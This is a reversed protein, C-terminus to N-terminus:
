DKGKGPSDNADDRMEIIERVVGDDSFSIWLIRKDTIERWPYEWVELPKFAARTSRYPPGFLERVQDRTSTDRVIKDVNARTLTQEIAQMVGDAGITVVYVQRGFPLQSYYWLTDGGTRKLRDAPEGMLAQIELATSKGAVLGRGDFSACGSLLALLAVPVMWKSKSKM